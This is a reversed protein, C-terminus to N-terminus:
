GALAFLLLKEEILRRISRWKVQSDSTSLVAQLRNLPWYDLLILVFPLTVLMSKAMLGVIFFLITLFYRVVTKCDTYIVYSGMALMWFFTSLVDKRETVWAVSEVHLPHIAFLAAIFASQWLAKTMRHFILFLLITNLIHFFLNTLHYGRPNLGFFEYDLMLSLWTVPHWQGLRKAEEASFAWQISKLSLGQQVHGNEYVYINDDYNIFDCDKLPWFTIVTIITLALCILITILNKHQTAESSLTGLSTPM